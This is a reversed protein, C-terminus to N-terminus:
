LRRGILNEVQDRNLDGAVFARLEDDSLAAVGEIGLAIVGPDILQALTRFDRPAKWGSPPTWGYPPVPNNRLLALREEVSQYRKGALKETDKTYAKHRKIRKTEGSVLTKTYGKVKWETKQKPMQELLSITEQRRDNITSNIGKNFDMWSADVFTIDCRCIGRPPMGYDLVMEEKPVVGVMSASMCIPKTKQDMPNFNWCAGYGLREARGTQYQTRQEMLTRTAEYDVESELSSGIKINGDETFLALELDIPTMGFAIGNFFINYVFVKWKEMSVNIRRISAKFFKNLIDLESNTIESRSKDIGGKHMIKELDMEKNMVLQILDGRAGNVHAFIQKRLRISLDILGRRINEVKTFNSLSTAKIRQDINVELSKLTRTYLVKTRRNNARLLQSTGAEYSDMFDNLLRRHQSLKNYFDKEIPM